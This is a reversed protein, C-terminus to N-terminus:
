ARGGHQDVRKVSLRLRARPPPPGSACPRGVRRTECRKLAFAGGSARLMWLTAGLTRVIARSTWGIASLMWGIARLM